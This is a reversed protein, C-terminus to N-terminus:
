APGTVLTVLDALLPNSPRALRYPQHVADQVLAGRRLLKDAHRYVAPLSIHCRLVLQEATLPGNRLAQLLLLRRPHTCATLAYMMDHTSEQRQIATAIIQLLEAADRVSPDAQPWYFTWRGVREVALLGRSQLGRLNGGAQQLPLKCASATQTVSTRRARLVHELVRLRRENALMRCTRWITPALPSQM